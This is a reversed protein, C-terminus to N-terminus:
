NFMLDPIKYMEELFFGGFKGSLTVFHCYDPVCTAEIRLFYRSKKLSDWKRRFYILIYSSLCGFLSCLLMLQPNSENQWMVSRTFKRYSM